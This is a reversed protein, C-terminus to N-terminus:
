DPTASLLKLEALKGKPAYLTDGAYVAYVYDQGDFRWDVRGSLPAGLKREIAWKIFPLKIDFRDAIRMYMTQNIVDRLAADAASINAMALATSLQRVVSWDTTGGGSAIPTYLTDFTYIQTAYAAGDSAQVRMSDDLPVGVPRRPTQSIFRYFAQDPRWDVGLAGYTHRMLDNYVAADTLENARIVVNWEGYPTIIVDRGYVEGAYRVGNTSFDMGVKIPSGLGHKRAFQHFVWDPRYEGGARKYIENRLAAGLSNPRVTAPPVTEAIIKLTYEVSYGMPDTKRTPAVAKHAFYYDRTLPIGYTDRFYRLLEIMSKTQATTIPTGDNPGELECGIAYVNLQNNTYGRAASGIGAHWAIYSREDVYHYITGDRTILYNYSAAVERRLNWQLSGYGATEHMVVFEPTFSRTSRPTKNPTKNLYSTNFQM